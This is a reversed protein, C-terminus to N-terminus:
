HLGIQVQIAALDSETRSPLCNFKSHLKELYKFHQATWVVDCYDLMHLVICQPFPIWTLVLDNVILAFYGLYARESYCLINIRGWAKM